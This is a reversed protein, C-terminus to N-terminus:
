ESLRPPAVTIEDVSLPKGRMFQRVVATVEPSVMFLNHGANRVTILEANSLGSVAERQSEIYTRGDLTGSLVLTPTNAAVPNRFGDGLDFEPAAKALYFTDNLWPGLLSAPAEKNIQARRATGIGSYIDMMVPMIKFSIPETPELARQAFTTLAAADGEALAQYIEVLQRAYRNPDAIMASALRQMDRKQFRMQANTGANRKLSLMLPKRELASHVGSILERLKIPDDNARGENLSMELREFYADTRAPLKVTQDLGEVSALVAREIRDDMARLAALALHTGYSIGLLSLKEAGLHERLADLDRVSELTNYGHPDVGAERWFDLCEILARQHVNVFEEDSLGRRYDVSESSSCKPTYDSKGTGRQDFAIVDGFERMAMFLPFRWSGAFWIGSGGPGGALYVVPPAGASEGIAPFRIYHLTLSRSSPDARNEAVTFTGRFADVVDGSQAEFLFSEETAQFNQAANSDSCGSFVAFVICLLFRVIM